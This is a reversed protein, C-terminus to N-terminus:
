YKREAEDKHLVAKLTVRKEIDNIEYWIRFNDGLRTQWIGHLRGRLPKGYKEPYKELKSIINELYHKKDRHKKKFERDFTETSEVIYSM